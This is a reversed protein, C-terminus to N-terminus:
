MTWRSTRANFQCGVVTTGLLIRGGMDRIRQACREWMMGPGKRPYRFSEILTKVIESNRSALVRFYMHTVMGVLLTFLFSPVALPVQQLNLSNKM